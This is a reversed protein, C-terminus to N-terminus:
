KKDTNNEPVPYIQEDAGAWVQIDGNNVIKVTFNEVDAVSKVDLNGDIKSVIKQVTSDSSNKDIVYTTDTIIGPEEALVMSTATAINKATALDAKKNASQRVEGFKPLALAALIAIIAIVIILEILTFGKKKRKKTLEKISLKNM